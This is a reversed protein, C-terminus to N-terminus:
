GHRRSRWWAVVMGIAIAVAVATMVAVVVHAHCTGKV